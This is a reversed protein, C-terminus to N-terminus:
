LHGAPRSEWDMAAESTANRFSLLIKESIGKEEVRYGIDAADGYPAVPQAGDRDRSAVEGTAVTAHAVKGNSEM